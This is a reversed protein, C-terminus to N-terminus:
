GRLHRYGLRLPVALKPPTRVMADDARQGQYRVTTRVQKLVKCARETVEFLFRLHAVAERKVVPTVLKEALDKLVANDLM